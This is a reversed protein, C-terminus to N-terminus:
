RERRLRRVMARARAVHTGAYAQRQDPDLAVLWAGAAAVPLAAAVQLFFHLLGAAPWWHEIAWLAAAFPAVAALPRIWMETFLRRLGIRLWRRTLLPVVVLSTV